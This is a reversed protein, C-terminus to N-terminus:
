SMPRAATAGSPALVDDYSAQGQVFREAAQAHGCSKVRIVRYSPRALFTVERARPDDACRADDVDIEWRLYGTRIM